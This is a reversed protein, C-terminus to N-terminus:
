DQRRKLQDKLQTPLQRIILMDRGEDYEIKSGLLHAEFSISLGEARGTFRQFQSLTRKDAPFEPAMGYDKNRIHEYFAKPREEDILGSLEELTIPEGMKAQGTAYGVLTKTKERAQEEPLDESEVYDSFAKLLTRTEGPGDVGEQCGIFDRFYDSVKKGNKGKIFSIYQKSQKNNQWESINIRAALHLQGLDLHKAPTVDLADTVAVGESHHLLAIALYDTMGQQYHALLVHGGTSLNSEEMLKQLHEVAQRSFATFDQEGDLYAKLWGSFPYAGSEEHFLGWAKGQKANYSENLDALLNEMAQSTALESDRAHLVAPSGDPKKDILHVICHRIPM